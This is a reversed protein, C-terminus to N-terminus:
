FRRRKLFELNKVTGIYGLINDFGPKSQMTSGSRVRRNFYVDNKVLTKGAYIFLQHTFAEDEYKASHFKFNNENLISKKFIYLPPSAYFGKCDALASFADEGSKFFGNIKRKYVDKSDLYNTSVDQGSHNEDLFSEGSFCFLELGPYKKEEDHFKKFIGKVSIDDSDFYYIYDGDANKTGLNRAFGQGQNRINFIKVFSLKGYQEELFIGSGDTSGDNVIIVEHIFDKQIIISDVAAKLFPLTNYVPIIVSIKKM